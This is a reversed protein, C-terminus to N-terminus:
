VTNNEIWGSIENITTLCKATELSMSVADDRTAVLEHGNMQLFVHAAIYATRKNGDVFPHLKNIEYILSAAKDLLSTHPEFDYVIRQPTETCLMLNSDSLLGYIGGSEELIRDHILILEAATLYRCKM